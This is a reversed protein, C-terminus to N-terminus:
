GFLYPSNSNVVVDDNSRGPGVDGDVLWRERPGHALQQETERSLSRGAFRGPLPRNDSEGGRSSRAVAWAALDAAINAALVWGCNIQSSKSPLNGLGTIKGHLSSRM